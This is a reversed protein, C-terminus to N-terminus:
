VGLLLLRRPRTPGVAAPSAAALPYAVSRRRFMQWPNASVAAVEVASLERAWSAVLHTVSNGHGSYGTYAEGGAYCFYPPADYVGDPPTSAGASALVGDAYLAIRTATMSAVFVRARGAAPTTDPIGVSEYGPNVKLIAQVLVGDSLLGHRWGATATGVGAVMQKSASATTSVPTSHWLHTVATMAATLTDPAALSANAGTANCRVGAGAARAEWVAGTTLTLLRGSALDMARSGRGENFPVCVVLGQTLPHGWDIPTGAPPKTTWVSKV